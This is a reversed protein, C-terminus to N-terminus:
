KHPIKVPSQRNLKRGENRLTRPHIELTMTNHPKHTHNDGCNFSIVGFDYSQDIKPRVAEVATLFLNRNIFGGLTHYKRIAARASQSVHARCLHFALNNEARFSCLTHRLWPSIQHFCRPLLKLSHSPATLLNWQPLGILALGFCYVPM